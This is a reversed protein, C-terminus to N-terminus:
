DEGLRKSKNAAAEVAEMVIGTFGNKELVHIGDITTGGPSAVKIRLNM